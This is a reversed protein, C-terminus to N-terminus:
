CRGAPLRLSHRANGLAAPDRDVAAVVEIRGDEIQPPLFRRCWTAGFGGTGVQIMRRVV